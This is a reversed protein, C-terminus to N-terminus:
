AFAANQQFIQARADTMADDIIGEKTRSGLNLNSVGRENQTGKAIGRKVLPLM